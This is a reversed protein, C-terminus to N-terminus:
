GLRLKLADLQEKMRKPLRDGFQALYAEADALTSKFLQTDVKMLEDWDKAPIDLGDLTIDGELPMLGIPTERAGVKGDIRECMWKLVRSNEGIFPTM